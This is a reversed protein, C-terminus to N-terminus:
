HTQRYSQQYILSEILPLTKFGRLYLNNSGLSKLVIIRSIIKQAFFLCTALFVQKKLILICLWRM